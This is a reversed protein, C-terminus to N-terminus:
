IGRCMTTRTLSHRGVCVYSKKRHGFGPHFPQVGPEHLHALAKRAIAYLAEDVGPEHLDITDGRDLGACFRRRAYLDFHGNRRGHGRYWFRFVNRKGYEELIVIDKHHVLGCAHYDMRGRSM